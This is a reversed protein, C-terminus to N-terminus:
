SGYCLVEWVQKEFINYCVLIIVEVDSETAIHEGVVNKVGM